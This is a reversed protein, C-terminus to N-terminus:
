ALNRKENQPLLTLTLGVLLGATRSNLFHYTSDEPLGGCTTEFIGHRLFCSISWLKVAPDLCQLKLVEEEDRRRGGEDAFNSIASYTFSLMNLLRTLTMLSVPPAVRSDEAEQIVSSIIELHRLCHRALTFIISNGRLINSRLFSYMAL